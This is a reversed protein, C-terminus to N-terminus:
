SSECRRTVMEGILTSLFRDVLSLYYVRQMSYTDFCLLEIDLDRIILEALSTGSGNAWAVILATPDRLNPYFQALATMVFRPIAADYVHHRCSLIRHVYQAEQVATIAYGEERFTWILERVFDEICVRRPEM